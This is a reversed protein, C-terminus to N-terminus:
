RSELTLSYIETTGLNRLIVPSNDPAVGSWGWALRPYNHLSVLQEVRGHVVDLRCLVRDNGETDFYIYKSDASWNPNNVKYADTPRWKRTKIDYIMLQQGTITLAALSRGDPSWRATWLGRSGPLESLKHTSLELIHIAETGSAQGFVKPVDGFAITGGDASWTPVGQEAEGPILLKPEGGQPPVLYIMWPKGPTRARLALWKEDPSWSFGEVQLPSFTIQYKRSGDVEARWITMEPYDIYALSRRFRSFSVWTASIGGLFPVFERVRSDFRVLEGRPQNGLAFLQKGDSAVVPLVYGQLGSSLRVPQASDGAFLKRQESVAWLDTRGERTSQFIFFRGDPTWTGGSEHGSNSWGQLLRHLNSGDAGVEWISQSLEGDHYNNETFRLRKGDPSWRAETAQGPVSTVQRPGLGDANAVFVSEHLTFALQRGDPSWSAFNARLSGVRRPSKGLPVIWLDGDGQDSFSRGALFESGQRSLDYFVADHVPLPIVEIGGGTVSVAALTVGDPDREAFYVRERDALLRAGSKDRGDSTLAAYRIVNLQPIPRFRAAIMAGLGLLIFVGSAVILGMPRWKRLPAHPSAIARGVESDLPQDDTLANRSEGSSSWADIEDQYAFVPQRKGGPLRHVPLRKEKEWRKVTRIDRRLYNAIEGWSDLRKREKQPM